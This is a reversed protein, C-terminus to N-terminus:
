YLFIRYLPVMSFNTYEQSAIVHNSPWIPRCFVLLIDCADQMIFSGIAGGESFVMISKTQGRLNQVLM